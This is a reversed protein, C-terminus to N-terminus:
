FNDDLWNNYTEDDPFASRMDDDENNNDDASVYEQYNAKAYESTELLKSNLRVAEALDTQAEVSVGKEHWAMSRQLYYNWEKPALRIAESYDAIAGDLDKVEKKANGRNFYPFSISPDLRM